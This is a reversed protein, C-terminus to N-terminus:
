TSNGLGENEESSLTVSTSTEMIGMPLESDNLHLIDQRTMRISPNPKLPLPFVVPKGQEGQILKALKHIHPDTAKSRTARVHAGAPTPLIGQHVVYNRYYICDEVWEDWAENVLVAVTHSNGRLFKSLKDFKDTEKGRIYRSIVSALFDLASQLAAFFADVEYLIKRDQVTIRLESSISGPRSKSELMKTLDERVTATLHEANHCHYATAEIKHHHHWVKTELDVKSNVTRFVTQPGPKITDMKELYSFLLEQFKDLREGQGLERRNNREM